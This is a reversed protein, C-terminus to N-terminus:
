SFQTLQFLGTQGTPTLVGVKLSYELHADAVLPMAGDGVISSNWVKLDYAPGVTNTGLYWLMGEVRPVGGGYVIQQTPSSIAPCTYGATIADGASVGTPLSLIEIIGNIADRLIFNVGSTFTTAGKQVTVASIPTGSTGRNALQYIAGVFVGGALAEATVTAGTQAGITSPKDAMFFMALNNANCEMLSVTFEPIRQKVIKTAPTPLNATFDLIQDIDDGMQSFEFKPANGLFIFPDLVGTTLNKRAFFVKGRPLSIRSTDINFGM